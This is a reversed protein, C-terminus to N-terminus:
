KKSTKKEAPKDQQNSSEIQALFDKLDKEHYKKADDGTKGSVIMMGKFNPHKIKRHSGKGSSNDVEAGAKIYERLLEKIKRPM